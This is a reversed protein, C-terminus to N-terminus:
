LLVARDRAAGPWHCLRRRQGTGHESAAVCYAVAPPFSGTDIQLMPSSLVAATIDDPYKELYRAAVCGGLSHALIFIRAHPKAKILTDIFTKLDDVYDDFRDVYVKQPDDDLIRESFGFGRADMLYCSMGLGQLDYVVEAYKIYSESKGHIIILSNTENDQEFAAYKILLANTGSFQSFTGNNYFPLVKAPYQDAYDSESIAHSSCPLALILLAAFLKKLM